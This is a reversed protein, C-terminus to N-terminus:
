CDWGYLTDDFNDDAADQVSFLELEDALEACHAADFDREEFEFRDTEALWLAPLSIGDM